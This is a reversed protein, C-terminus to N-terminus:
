KRRTQFNLCYMTCIFVAWPSRVRCRDTASHKPHQTKTVWVSEGDTFITLPSLNNIVPCTGSFRAPTCMLLDTTDILLEFVVFFLFCFWVKISQRCCRSHSRRFGCLQCSWYTACHPFTGAFNLFLLFSSAFFCAVHFFFRIKTVSYSANANCLCCAVSPEVFLATSYGAIAAVVVCYRVNSAGLYRQICVISFYIFIYDNM